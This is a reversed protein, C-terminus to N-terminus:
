VYRQDAGYNGLSPNQAMQYSNVYGQPQNDQYVQGPELPQYQKSSSDPNPNAESDKSLMFGCCVIFACYGCIGLFGWLIAMGAGKADYVCNQSGNNTVMKYSWKCAICSNDPRCNSCGETCKFCSGMNGLGFGDNCKKCNGSSDCDACYLPCSHCSGNSLYYGSKCSTCAIFLCVRCKAVRCSSSSSGGSSGSGGLSQSWVGRQLLWVISVVSVALKM